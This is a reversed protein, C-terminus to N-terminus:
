TQKKGEKVLFCFEDFTVADQAAKRTLTVPM